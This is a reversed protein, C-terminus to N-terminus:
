SPSDAARRATPDAILVDDPIPEGTVEDVWYTGDALRALAHEVAALDTEIVDLDIHAAESEVVPESDPEATASDTPEAGSRDHEAVTTATDATDDRELVPEDIQPSEHTPDDAVLRRYDGNSGVAGPSPEPAGSSVKARM